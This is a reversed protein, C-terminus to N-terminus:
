EFTDHLIKTYRTTILTRTEEPLQEYIGSTMTSQLQQLAFFGSIHKDRQIQETSRNGFLEFFDERTFDIEERRRRKKQSSSSNESSASNSRDRPTIGVDCPNITDRTCFRPPQGKFLLHAYLYVTDGRAFNEFFDDDGDGDGEMLHGSRHYNDNFVSYKSRMSSFLKRLMEPQYDECPPKSPDIDEVRSDHFPNEPKWHACNFFSDCLIKWNNEMRINKDDTVARREIKPVGGFIVELFGVSQPDDALHWARARLNKPIDKEDETLLENANASANPNFYKMMENRLLSLGEPLLNVFFMRQVSRETVKKALTSPCEAPIYKQRKLLRLLKNAQYGLKAGKEGLRDYIEGGSLSGWDDVVAQDINPPTSAPAPTTCADLLTTM